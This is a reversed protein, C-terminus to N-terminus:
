RLKCTIDIRMWIYSLQNHCRGTEALNLNKCTFIAKWFSVFIHEFFSCGQQRRIIPDPHFIALTPRIMDEGHSKSQSKLFSRM